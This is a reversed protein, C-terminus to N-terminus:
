PQSDHIVVVKTLREGKQLDLGWRHLFNIVTNWNKKRYISEFESVYIEYDIPGDIGTEDIFPAEEIPRYGYAMTSYSFPYILYQLLIDKMVANHYQVLSDGIRKVAFKGSGSNKVRLKEKAGATAVLKWYPMMREEVNVKYGFYTDLDRRLAKQLYLASVNNDAVVLSYNYRNTIAEPSWQFPTTDSVELIAKYWFNGYRDRSIPNAITDPYVNSGVLRSNVLQGFTDAYAMYYLKDISIGIQQVMAGNRPEGAPLKRYGPSLIYQLQAGREGRFETLTSRFLFQDGSGGNNNVFMPQYINILPSEALKSEHDKQKAIEITYEPQEVMAIAKELETSNPSGIWAIHGTKDILFAHPIGTLNANQLWQKELTASPDDAGVIYNISSGNQKLLYRISQLYATDKENKKAEMVFLSLITLSDKM